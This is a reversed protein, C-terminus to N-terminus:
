AISTIKGSFLDIGLKLINSKLSHNTYKKIKMKMVYHGSKGQKINKCTM